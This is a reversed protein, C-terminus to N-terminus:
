VPGSAPVGDGNLYAKLSAIQEKVRGPAPGGAIDRAAVCAAPTICEYLDPAILASSAGAAEKMEQLTLDEINCGKAICYRVIGASVTHATRFPLGKKVLYEAIDTANAYGGTCSEEM